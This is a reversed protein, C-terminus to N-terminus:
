VCICLIVSPTAKVPITSNQMTHVNNLSKVREHTTYFFSLIEHTNYNRNNSSLKNTISEPVRSYKTEHYVCM